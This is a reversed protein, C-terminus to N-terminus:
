LGAGNSTSKPDKHTTHANPSFGYRDAAAAAAATADDESQGHHRQAMEYLSFAMSPEIVIPQQEPWSQETKIGNSGSPVIENSDKDLSKDRGPDAQEENVEPPDDQGPFVPQSCPFVPQEVPDPLCSPPPSASHRKRTDKLKYLENRTEKDREETLSSNPNPSTSLDSSKDAFMMEQPEDQGPFVPQSCPFVPQQVEPVHDSHSAPSLPEEKTDMILHQLLENGVDKKGESSRGSSNHESLESDVVSNEREESKKRKRRGKPENRHLLSLTSGRLTEWHSAPKTIAKKIQFSLSEIQLVIAACFLDDIHDPPVDSEGSYIFNLIHRLADGSVIPINFEYGHPDVKFVNRLYPSVAGVVCKHAPFLSKNYLLESELRTKGKNASDAGAVLITDCLETKVYLERLCGTIYANWCRNKVKVDEYIHNDGAM